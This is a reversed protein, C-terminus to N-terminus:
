GEDNSEVLVEDGPDFKPLVFILVTMRGVARHRVGPPILICLGPRLPVSEDDLEMRADPACQLIYYTETLRRHFHTKAEGCIETRHVTAPFDDRELLARRAQGCPCPVPPIADFDVVQYRPRTM